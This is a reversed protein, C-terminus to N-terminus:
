SRQGIKVRGGTVISAFQRVFEPGLSDSDELYIFHEAGYYAKPGMEGIGFGYVEIGAERVKKCVERLNRAMVHSNGHGAYPEGDCISFIVKRKEKRQALRYACYEIAEGDVNHQSACMATTRKAVAQWQEGFVKYHRYIIPNTRDFGDMKSLARHGSWHKTTTGVIEFEVGIKTLAEGIAIAMRRVEHMNSMSGSEDIVIEVVTDLTIGKSEKYFVSKSLGTAAQVLRRSDFTGNRLGRNKRKKSLIRLSQDLARTLVM